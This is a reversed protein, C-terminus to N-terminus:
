ETPRELGPIEAATLVNRRFGELSFARRDPGSIWWIELEVREVYNWLPRPEPPLEFITLRARWGGRAGGMLAPDFVGEVVQNRPMRYDLLLADMKSRAVMAARDYDTLRAANRMSASTSSLLGVIAVAMIFTAV